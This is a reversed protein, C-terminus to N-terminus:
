LTINSLSMKDKPSGEPTHISPVPTGRAQMLAPDIALQMPSKRHQQHADLTPVALDPIRPLQVSQASPSPQMSYSGHAARQPTFAPAQQYQQQQQMQYHQMPSPQRSIPQQMPQMYQRQQQAHFMQPQAPLFPEQLMQPQKQQDEYRTIQMTPVQFDAESAFVNPTGLSLQPAASQRRDNRNGSLPPLEIPSGNNHPSRGSISSRDSVMSPAGDASMQSYTSPSPLPTEVLGQRIAHANSPLSMHQPFQMQPQQYMPQQFYQQPMQPVQPAQFGAPMQPHNLTPVTQQQTPQRVSVEQRRHNNSRRRRNMGGNWWNKVANDSRGRLRRAIEAWRKGMEAVMQEILVGEEPTIPDHNLNPKLNQHFRERCQKPSRTGITSSIRVWNHAGHLNVLHLLYQDETASWPGRKHQPM